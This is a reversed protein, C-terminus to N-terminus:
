RITRLNRWEKASNVVHHVVYSHSCHLGSCTFAAPYCTVDQSFTLAVKLKFTKILRQLSSLITLSHLSTVHDQVIIAHPVQEIGCMRKMSSVCIAKSPAQFMKPTRDVKCAACRVFIWAAPKAWVKGTSSTLTNVAPIRAGHVVQHVWGELSKEKWLCLDSWLRRETGATQKLQQIWLSCREENSTHLACNPSFIIKLKQWLQNTKRSQLFPLTPSLMSPSPFLPDDFTTRVRSSRTKMLVWSLLRTLETSFRNQRDNM